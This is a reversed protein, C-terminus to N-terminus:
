RYPSEGLLRRLLGIQGVHLMEHRAVWYLLDLKNHIMGTTHTAPEDLVSDPLNKLVIMTQTFVADMGAVIETPPPYATPDAVAASGKGFREIWTARLPSTGPQGAVTGLAHIVQAVTIHGAQWAIHTPCGAPLEFWRHRDTHDLVLCTYQRTRAIQDIVINLRDSM